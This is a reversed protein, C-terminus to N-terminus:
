AKVGTERYPQDDVIRRYSLRSLDISQYDGDLILESIARGAAPAHQLGHGSCGGIMYFNECGGIWRGIIANGDFTNQAYHAAWANKLRVQEFKPVRRALM